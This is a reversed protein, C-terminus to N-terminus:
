EASFEQVRVADFSRESVSKFRPSLQLTSVDDYVYFFREAAGVSMIPYSLHLPSNSLMAYGGSLEATESYFYIPCNPLYYSLEIAYYPDEAVVATSGRCSSEVYSAVQKASPQQSRQFNYNGRQVLHIVGITMTVCLIGAALWMYRSRSKGIAIAIAVGIFLVGGIIVHALYREVYMPKRLTILMLLLVPVISYMALLALYKRQEITANKFAKITFYAIAGIVFVVVLSATVSVQWAQEYLFNFTIIEMLQVLGLQQVVPTLAGNNLQALFTPLWPLFLVVGGGFALVWHWQKIPRKEALSVWLLWLAHAAWLLVTYYLTYVGVAILLAYVGYLLWQARQSKAQLARVLVYTAAVGILSAITYMRIEFGYRLLFPAIALLPLAFLAVRAGFMRKVLLGGVILSAGFALISLSRLALESWGFVAAWAKLILYYLPPHTDIATLRFIEALAQKALMISYAEDFWVSQQLGIILSLCMAFLTSGLLIGIFHREAWTAKKISFLRKLLRSIMYIM